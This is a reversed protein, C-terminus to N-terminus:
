LVIGSRQRSGTNKAEIEPTEVVEADVVDGQPEDLDIFLRGGAAADEWKATITVKSESKDPVKGLARDFILAMAKVRAETGYGEYTAIQLLADTVETMKSMLQRQIRREMSARLADHMVWPIAKPASGTFNGNTDRLQGRAIEDDDLDDVTIVGDILQQYREPVKARRKYVRKKGGWQQRGEPAVETM